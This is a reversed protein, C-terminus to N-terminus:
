VTLDIFDYIAQKAVPHIGELESLSVHESLKKSRRAVRKKKSQQHDELRRGHRLVNFDIAVGESEVVLDIAEFVRNIDEVIRSSSPAHEWTRCVASWARHPDCLSFKRPDDRPLFRTGAVNWRVCTELDSFLNSDLPMYEPTDGPLKGGYRNDQNTHGLGRIQRDEFGLGRIFEQAGASWWSSLADHYMVWNDEFETDKFIRNGESVAHAM